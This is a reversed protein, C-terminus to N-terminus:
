EQCVKWKLMDPQIKTMAEILPALADFGAVAHPPKGPKHVTLCFTVGGQEDQIGSAVAVSGMWETCLSGM